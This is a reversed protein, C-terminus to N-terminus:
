AIIIREGLEKEIAKKTETKETLLRMIETVDAGQVRLQMRLDKIQNRLIVEKLELLCRPILVDLDEVNEVIGLADYRDELLRNVELMVNQDNIGTFFRVSDFEVQPDATADIALQLMQAYLPSEFVINDQYLDYGIYDIVRWVESQDKGDTDKWKLNISKGGSRVVYRVINQECRTRESIRNESLASPEPKPVFPQPAAPLPQPESSPPTDSSPAQERPTEEAQQSALYEARRAEIEMRRLEDAYNTNRQENLAALVAAESVSIMQATQRVYLSTVIPDEILAISKVISNVVKSNQLPDASTEELMMQTKYTIFDQENADFFRQVEETTHKRCFSDPDDGDPLLLLKVKMGELLLLDITKLSARIGAADGDFMLTVNSTFRKIMRIQNTTLATGASAVVNVFGAQSMSLVDVNGEVIYCKDRRAIEGKAQFIGYLFNSKHYIMSEPSNVYKKFAHDVRELIRGSFAIPKGSLSHFPFIVRGAFRCVPMKAPDDGYCLGVGVKRTETPDLLYERKHGQKLARTSFDTKGSVAYGLNFRKITEDQLGREYFYTLGINKGEQTGYLDEEFTKMAFENLRLMGERDNQAEREEKTQEREHLEISYKKALQRIAEMYSIQEHKMLFHIPDGGEGCSFCKCFNKAPSVYFSPTKDAHFPCLGLYNQGRRRLSVYEGVVDLIQATDRIKDITLQDIM